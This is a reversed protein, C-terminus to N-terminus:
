NKIFISSQDFFEKPLINRKKRYSYLCTQDQIPIVTKTKNIENNIRQM